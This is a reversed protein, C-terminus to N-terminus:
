AQVVPISFTNPPPESVTRNVFPSDPEDTFNLDDPEDPSTMTQGVPIVEYSIEPMTGEDISRELAEDLHLKTGPHRMRYHHRLWFEGKFSVDECLHCSFNQPWKGGTCICFYHLSSKMSMLNYNHIKRSHIKGYHKHLIHEDCLSANEFVEQCQPCSYSQANEMKVAKLIVGKDHTIPKRKYARKNSTPRRRQQPEFDSDSDDPLSDHELIEEEVSDISNCSPGPDFDDDFNNDEVPADNNELYDDADNIGDDDVNNEENVVAKTEPVSNPIEAAEYDDLLISYTSIM